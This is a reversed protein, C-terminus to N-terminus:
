IEPMLDNGSIYGELPIRMLFIRLYSSLPTTDECLVASSSIRQESSVLEM